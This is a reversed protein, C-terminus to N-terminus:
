CTRSWSKSRSGKAIRRRECGRRWSPYPSSPTSAFGANRSRCPGSGAGADLASAGPAQRLEEALALVRADAHKGFPAAGAPGALWERYQEELSPCVISLTCDVGSSDQAPQYALIFRAHPSQAFGEELKQRFTASFRALEAGSLPRGIIAFLQSLQELYAEGLAPLCAGSFSGAALTRAQLRQAIASSHSAPTRSRAASSFRKM